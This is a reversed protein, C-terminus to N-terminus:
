NFFLFRYFLCFTSPFYRFIPYVIESLDTREKERERDITDSKFFERLRYYSLIYSTNYNIAEM